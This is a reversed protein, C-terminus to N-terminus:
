VFEAIQLKNCCFYEVANLNDIIKESANLDSEAFSDVFKLCLLTCVGSTKFIIWKLCEFAVQKLKQCWMKLNECARLGKALRAGVALRVFKKTKERLM